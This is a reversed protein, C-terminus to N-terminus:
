TPPKRMGPMKSHDMGPMSPPAPKTTPKPTASPKATPKVVSKTAPVRSTIGARPSARKPTATPASTSATSVHSSAMQDLMRQLVPDSRVRERIVPDAMMRLHITMLMASASDSVISMNMGTMQAGSAISDSRAGPMQMGSHDMGAHDMPTSTAGRAATPRMGGAARPMALSGNSFSGCALQVSKADSVSSDVVVHFASNASLPADLTVASSGKGVADVAIPAYSVAAGVIGEDRGCSGRRVSWPRRSGPLDGSWTIRITTGAITATGSASRSGLPGTLLAAVSGGQAMPMGSHNPMTGSTQAVAVTNVCLASVVLLSYHLACMPRLDSSCM